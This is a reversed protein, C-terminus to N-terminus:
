GRRGAALPGAQMRYKADGKYALTDKHGHQMYSLQVKAGLPGLRRSSDGEKRDADLDLTHRHRRTHKEM